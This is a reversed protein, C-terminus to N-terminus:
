AYLKVGEPTPLLVPLRAAVGMLVASRLDGLTVSSSRTQLYADVQQLDLATESSAFLEGAPRLERSNMLACIATKTEGTLILKQATQLFVEGNSTRKLDEVAETFSEGRGTQGNEGRLTFSNNQVHIQLTQIPNLESADHIQFPLRGAFTLLLFAALLCLLSRM